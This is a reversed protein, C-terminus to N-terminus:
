RTFTVRVTHSVGDGLDVRLQWAAIGEPRTDMTLRSQNVVPIFDVLNGRLLLKVAPQEPGVHGSADIPAVFLRATLDCIGASAGTLAFRVPLPVNHEWRTSGDNLIPLLFGSWSVLVRVHFSG